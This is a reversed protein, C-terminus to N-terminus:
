TGLRGQLLAPRMGLVLQGRWVRRGTQEALDQSVQPPHRWEAQLRWAGRPPCCHPVLDPGLNRHSYKWLKDRVLRSTLLEYLQVLTVRGSVRDYEVCLVLLRLVLVCVRCLGEVEGLAWLALSALYRLALAHPWVKEVVVGM